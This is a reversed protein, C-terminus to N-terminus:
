LLWRKRMNSARESRRRLVSPGEGAAAPDALGVDVGGHAFDPQRQELGVDVELDDLLEDRADLLARDALFDEAAEVGALLDDLDDVLLEGREEGGAVAAEVEGAVGGDDREDAELAGALRGAGGLEGAVDGLEPAPREEDRRVGVPGAAM